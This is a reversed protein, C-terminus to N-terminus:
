VAEGSLVRGRELSERAGLRALLDILGRFALARRARALDGCAAEFASPAGAPAPHYHVPGLARAYAGRVAYGYFRGASDLVRGVRAGQYHDLTKTVDRIKYQKQKSDLPNRRGGRIPRM